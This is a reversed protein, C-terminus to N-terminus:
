RFWPHPPDAGKRRSLNQFVKVRGLIVVYFGNGDDDEAFIVQNKEYSKQLVISALQKHNALSLGQFLPITELQKAIDM